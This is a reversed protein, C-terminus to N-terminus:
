RGVCLLTSRWIGRWLMSSTEGLTPASSLFSSSSPVHKPQAQHAKPQANTAHTSKVPMNGKGVM